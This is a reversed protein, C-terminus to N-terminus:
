LKRLFKSLKRVIKVSYLVFMRKSFILSPDRLRLFIRSLDEIYVLMVSFSRIGKIYRPYPMREIAEIKAKDM